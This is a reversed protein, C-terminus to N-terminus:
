LRPSTLSSKTMWCYYSDLIDQKQVTMYGRGEILGFPKALGLFSLPTTRDLSFGSRARNANIVTSRSIKDVGAFVFDAGRDVNEGRVSGESWM